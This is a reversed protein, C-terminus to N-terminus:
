SAVRVDRLAAVLEALDFPKRLYARAGLAEARAQGDDSASIVVLPVDDGWRARLAGAVAEGPSTPLSLDLLVVDPRRVALWALAEPADAVTAAVLGFHALTRRLTTRMHADDDVCLARRATGTTGDDGDEFLPATM